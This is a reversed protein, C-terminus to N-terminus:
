LVDNVVVPDAEGYRLEIKLVSCLLWGGAGTENRYGNSYDAM